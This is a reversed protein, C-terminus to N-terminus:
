LSDRVWSHHSCSALLAPRSISPTGPGSSAMLSELSCPSGTCGLYARNQSDRETSSRLLMSFAASNPSPPTLKESSTLCTRSLSPSGWLGSPPRRKGRPWQDLYRARRRPPRSGEDISPPLASSARLDAVPRRISGLAELLIPALTPLGSFALGLVILPLGFTRKGVPMVPAEAREMVLAASPPSLALGTRWSLLHGRQPLTVWLYRQSTQPVLVLGVPLAWCTSTSRASSSLLAFSARPMLPPTLTLPTFASIDESCKGSGMSFPTSLARWPTVTNLSPVALNSMVSRGRVCKLGESTPRM